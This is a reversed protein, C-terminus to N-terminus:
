LITLIKIYRPPLANEITVEKSTQPFWPPDTFKDLFGIKVDRERREKGEVSEEEKKEGGEM